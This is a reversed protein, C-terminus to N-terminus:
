TIKLVFSNGYGWVLTLKDQPTETICCDGSKCTTYLDSDPPPGPPPPPFMFPPHLPHLQRPQPQGRRHYHSMAVEAATFSDSDESDSYVSVSGPIRYPWSVTCWGGRDGEARRTTTPLLFILYLSGLSWVECFVSQLYMPEHKLVKTEGFKHLSSLTPM